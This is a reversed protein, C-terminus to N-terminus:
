TKLGLTSLSVGKYSCKKYEKVSVQNWKIKGIILGDEELIFYNGFVNPKYIFNFVPHKVYGNKILIELFQTKSM